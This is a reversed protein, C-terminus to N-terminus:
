SNLSFYFHLLPNKGLSCMAGDDNTGTKPLKSPDDDVLTFWCFLLVADHELEEPSEEPSTMNPGITGLREAYVRLPALTAHSSIDESRLRGSPLGSDDVCWVRQLAQPLHPLARELLAGFQLLTTNKCVRLQAEHRWNDFYNTAAAGLMFTDTVVTVDIFQRLSTRLECIGPLAGSSPQTAGPANCSRATSVVVTSSSWTELAEHTMRPLRLPPDFAVNEFRLRLNDCHFAVNTHTM